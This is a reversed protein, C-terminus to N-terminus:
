LPKHLNSADGGYLDYTDTFIGAIAEKRDSVETAINYQLTADAASRATAETYIVDAIHEKLVNLYGPTKVEGSGAKKEVIGLIARLADEIRNLNDANIEKGAGNTFRDNSNYYITDLNEYSPTNTSATNTAM